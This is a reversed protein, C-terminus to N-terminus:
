PLVDRILDKQSSTLSTPFKVNVRVVLDGRESPNKSIVMGLGPYHEEHGPQTPGPKSVRISKGDITKVIREWGTLAEKLSLEVTTVLNDGSRKFTPHDLEKVILHVDQRGGEEQDGINRYKIKSGARLGPKINAELTVEQTTRKGMRDFAKSKTKVKKSVGKFIEELTLPLDKEIITPEPTPARKPKSYGAGPRSRGFGAGGGGGGLGGNLMSFIDDDEFGMGGGGGGSSKAFNRFIDDADSFRFGSGGGGPGTSFHFTRSGGGGPMGGFNFGGPMGGEFGSAGGGGGGPPPPPPGGRMLYDLGYQDYVKRKEPDSLVEYAQSVDKFREAADPNDKNKDPHHKLAAKRYAKKIEDQTADPKVSLADYLKTESVM